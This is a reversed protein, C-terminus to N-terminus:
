ATLNTQKEDDSELRGDGAFKTNGLLKHLVLYSICCVFIGDLAPSYFSFFLAVVVGIIWSVIGVWNFGKVVYWNEPKGKGIIWYDAIMVGAIPPVLSSLISIFSQLVDALGAIAIGTGVVGCILTVLPRKSDKVRFVKMAALGATYANGTNTTWTALILVLMSIIPLGMGAFVSTIDYNGAAIAMIAGITIMLIAAPLVGLITAKVTDTRSKAYRSYDANIVTGVAFLGIVIAIASTMPMEAQPVNNILADMGKLQIAHITGYGCLLVLAPVAIYNLTKMFKFGYVATVLMVGGWIICSVEFPISVNWNNLLANFATACAATQVGFWGLQAVLVVVSMLLSSGADGFAKTACMTSPLGLDTGQIGTLIMIFSCISFGIFAAIVINQLSLGSSFIGGVMLMPICIMTGIWIFAISTWSQREDKTVVGLAKVEISSNTQNAMRIVGKKRLLLSM